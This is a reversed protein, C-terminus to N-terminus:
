ERGDMSPQSANKTLDRDTQNAQMPTRSTDNDTM